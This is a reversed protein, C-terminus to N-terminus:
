NKRFLDYVKKSVRPLFIFALLNRKEHVGILPNFLMTFLHQRIWRLIMRYDRNKYNMIELPILRFFLEIKLCCFSEAFLKLEPYKKEVIKKAYFANHVIDTINNNWGSRTISGERIRYNYSVHNLEIIGGFDRQKKILNLWMFFDENNKENPFLTFDFFYRPFISSCASCWVRERLLMYMFAEKNFIEGKDMENKFPILGNEDFYQLLIQPLYYKGEIKRINFYLVEVYDKLLIDDSDVFCIFSGKANVIGKNRAGSLGKNSQHIVRIRKDIKEWKYCISLSSDTSGDDVLIIEITNYSQNIVSKICEDIYDEVNYVPIIISILDEKDHNKM